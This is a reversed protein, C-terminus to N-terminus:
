QLFVKGSSKSANGTGLRVEDEEIDFKQILGEDRIIDAAGEGYELPLGGKLYGPCDRFGFAARCVVSLRSESQNFSRFRHGARLNVLDFVLEEIPYENDEIAVAIALGEGQFFM